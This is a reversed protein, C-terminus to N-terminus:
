SAHKGELLELCREVLVFLVSTTITLGIAFTATERLAHGFSYSVVTIVQGMRFLQIYNKGALKVLLRKM